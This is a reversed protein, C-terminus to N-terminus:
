SIRQCLTISDTGSANADAVQGMIRWTGTPVTAGAWGTASYKCSSGPCTSGPTTTTNGGVILLAYSGIDGVAINTLATALGNRDVYNRYIWNSLYDNGWTPGWINGDNALMYATGAYVHNRAQISGGAGIVLNDAGGKARFHFAGTSDVYMLGREGGNYDFLWFHLNGNNTTDNSQMRFMGAQMSALGGAAQVLGDAVVGGGNIRIGNAASVLLRGQGASGSNANDVSVRVDYDAHGGAGHFDAVGTVSATGVEITPLVLPGTMADGAKKVVADLTALEAWPYWTGGSYKRAFIRPAAVGEYVAIQSIQEDFKMHLLSFSGSAIPGNNTSNGQLKYVGNGLATNNADTIVPGQAGIGFDGVRLMSGATTDTASTTKVLDADNWLKVWASWVGDKMYRNSQQQVGYPWATQVANTENFFSTMVVGGATSTSAPKNAATSSYKSWGTVTVANLDTVNPPTADGLGFDGIQMFNAAVVGGLKASDAAVATKNLKADLQAQLDGATLAQYCFAVGSWNRATTGEAGRVVGTLKLGARATYSIVEVTSPKTPSDALVLLGGTTSPLQYPAVADLLTIETATASLPLTLQAQVFNAYSM